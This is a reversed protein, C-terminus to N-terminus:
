RRVAACRAQAQAVYSRDAPAPASSRLAVLPLALASRRQRDSRRNMGRAGASANLLLCAAGDPGPVRCGGLTACTHKRRIREDAHQHRNSGPPERRRGSALTRAARRPAVAKTRASACAQGDCHRGFAARGRAVAQEDAALVADERLQPQDGICCRTSVRSLSSLSGPTSNPQGARAVTRTPDSASGLGSEL